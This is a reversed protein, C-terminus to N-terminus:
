IDFRQRQAIRRERRFLFVCRQDVREQHSTDELSAQWRAHPVAAARQPSSCLPIRFASACLKKQSDFPIGTTRCPITRRGPGVRLRYGTTTCNKLSLSRLPARNSRFRVSIHKQFTRHVRSRRVLQRLELSCIQRHAIQKKGQEHANASADKIAFCSGEVPYGKSVANNAGVRTRCCVARVHFLEALDCCTGARETCVDSVQDAAPCAELV